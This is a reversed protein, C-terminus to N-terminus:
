LLGVVFERIVLSVLLKDIVVGIGLEEKICLLVNVNELVVVESVDLTRVIVFLVM